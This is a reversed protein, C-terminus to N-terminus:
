RQTGPGRATSGGAQHGPAPQQVTPQRLAADLTSAQGHAALQAPHPTPTSARHATRQVDSWAARATELVAEPQLTPDQAVRQVTEAATNSRSALSGRLVVEAYFQPDGAPSYQTASALQQPTLGDQGRRQQHWAVTVPDVQPGSPDAHVEAAAHLTAAVAPDAFDGQELNPLEDLLEPRALVHEVLAGEAETRQEATPAEPRLTDAAADLQGRQTEPNTHHWRQEVDQLHQLAHGVDDLMTALQTSHSSAQGVRMGDQSIQRRISSELVMSAYVAPQTSHAPPATQMLTHLGPATLSPHQGAAFEAQQQVRQWVAVPDVGEVASEPEAPPGGAATDAEAVLDGVATFVQQHASSYFDEADLWDLERVRGPEHLLTGLLATEAFDRPNM